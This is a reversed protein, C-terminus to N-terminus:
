ASKVAKENSMFRAADIMAEVLHVFEDETGDRMMLEITGDDKCRAGVPIQYSM